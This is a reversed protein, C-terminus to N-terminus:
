RGKVIRKMLRWFSVDPVEVENYFREGGYHDSLPYQNGSACGTVTLTTLLTGIFTKM